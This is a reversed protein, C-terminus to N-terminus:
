HHVRRPLRRQLQHARPPRCVSLPVHCGLHKTWKHFDVCGASDRRLDGEGNYVMNNKVTNRGTKFQTYFSSQKEWVGAAGAPWWLVTGRCCLLCDSCHACACGFCAGIEHALNGFIYNGRPQNGATGNQGYGEPLRADGGDTNGWSAICSEGIWVFQLRLASLFSAAAHPTKVACRLSGLRPRRGEVARVENYQIAADRNYASLLIASGDVREFVCGSM